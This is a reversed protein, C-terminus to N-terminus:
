NKFIRSYKEKILKTFNFTEAERSLDVKFIDVNIQYTSMLEEKAKKALDERSHYTIILDYGARAFEKSIALGLSHHGGTILTLKQMFDGKLM